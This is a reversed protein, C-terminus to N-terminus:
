NRVEKIENKNGDTFFVAKPKHELAEAEGMMAYAAIIVKDGAKAKHAAAGQIGIMGSGGEAKIVYTTFREGNSSNYIDVQENPLFGAAKMLDADIAVSGEYELNAEIVTANHLKGKLLTLNM